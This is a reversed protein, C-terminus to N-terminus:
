EGKSSGCRGPPVLGKGAVTHHQSPLLHVTNGGLLSLIVVPKSPAVDFEEPMDDPEITVDVKPNPM